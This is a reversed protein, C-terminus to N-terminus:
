KFQVQLKIQLADALRKLFSLSPTTNSSELRSIVSQKTNLREALQKQTLGKEIRARIVARAIQYEIESEEYLKRFKPNKMLQKKHTQLDM